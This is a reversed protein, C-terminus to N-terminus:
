GRSSGPETLGHSQGPQWPVESSDDTRFPVTRNNTTPGSITASLILRSASLPQYGGMVKIARRVTNNM